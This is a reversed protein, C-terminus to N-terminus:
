RKETRTMAPQSDPSTSRRPLLMTRKQDDSEGGKIEICNGESELKARAVALELEVDPKAAKANLNVEWNYPEMGTEYENGGGMSNFYGDVEDFWITHTVRKVNYSMITGVLYLTRIKEM